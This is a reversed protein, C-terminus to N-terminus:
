RTPVGGLALAEVLSTAVPHGSGALDDRHHSGGDYLVIRTGVGVAAAADDLTDGVLLVTDPDDIGLTRLHVVLREAKPDDCWERVGDVLCFRGIEGFRELHGVIRDHYHMSLLSQSLGVSAALSLAHAADVTLAVGDLAGDYATHWLSNIAAWEEDGLERGEMESYFRRLPQVFNRRYSESDMAGLGRHVRVENVAVLVAVHDDFLTGNWDWVVHAPPRM